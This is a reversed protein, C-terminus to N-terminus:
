SPPNGDQFWGRYRPDNAFGYNLPKQVVSRCLDQLANLPLIGNKWYQGPTLPRSIHQLSVISKLTRQGSRGTAYAVRGDSLLHFAEDAEWSAWLQWGILKGGETAIWEYSASPYTATRKHIETTIERIIDVFRNYTPVFHANAIAKANAEQTAYRDELSGM